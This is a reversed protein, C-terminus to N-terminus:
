NRQSVEISAAIYMLYRPGVHPNRTKFLLKSKHKSSSFNFIPQGAHVQEQDLITFTSEVGEQTNFLLRAYVDNFLTKEATVIGLEGPGINNPEVSIMNGTNKVIVSIFQLTDHTNNIITTRVINNEDGTMGAYCPTSLFCILVLVRIYHRIM